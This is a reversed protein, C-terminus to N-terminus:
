PDVLTGLGNPTNYETVSVVAPAVTSAREIATPPMTLSSIAPEVSATPDTTPNEDMPSPIRPPVVSVAVNPWTTEPVEPVVPRIKETWTSLSHPLVHWDVCLDM